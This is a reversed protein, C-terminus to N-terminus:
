VLKPKTGLAFLIRGATDFTCNASSHVIRTVVQEPTGAAEGLQRQTWGLESLRHLVIQALDLRLDLGRSAPSREFEELGALLEPIPATKKPARKRAGSRVKKPITIMPM